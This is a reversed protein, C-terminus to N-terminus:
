DADYLFESPLDEYNVADYHSYVTYFVKQKTFKIAIVTAYFEEHDDTVVKVDEDIAYRSPYNTHEKNAQIM